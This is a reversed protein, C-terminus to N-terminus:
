ISKSWESSLDEPKDIWRLILFLSFGLLNIQFTRGLSGRGFNIFAWWHWGNRADYNWWVFGIVLWHWNIPLTKLAFGFQTAREPHIM